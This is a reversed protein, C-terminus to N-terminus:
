GCGYFEQGLLLIKWLVAFTEVFDRYKKRSKVSGFWVIYACECKLSNFSFRLRSEIIALLLVRRWKLAFNLRVFAYSFRRLFYAQRLKNFRRDVFCTIISKSIWSIYINLCRLIIRTYNSKSNNIYVVYSLNKAGCVTSREILVDSWFWGYLPVKWLM